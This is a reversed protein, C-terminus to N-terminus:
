YRSPSSLKLPSARAEAACERAEPDITVTALVATSWTAPTREVSAAVVLVVVLLGLKFPRITMAGYGGSDNAGTSNAIRFVM